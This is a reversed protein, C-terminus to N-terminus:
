EVGLARLVQNTASSLRHHRTYPPNAVIAAFRNDQPRLILDGIVVQELDRASLGNSEAQRLAPLEVEAGFVIIARRIRGAEEKATIFVAGAGGAPDFVSEAGDALCYAVM